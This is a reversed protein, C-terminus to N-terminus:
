PHKDTVGRREHDEEVQAKWYRRAAEVDRASDTGRSADAQRKSPVLLRMATKFLKM